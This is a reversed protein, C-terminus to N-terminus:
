ICCIVWNFAQLVIYDKKVSNFDPDGRVSLVGPLSALEKSMNEGIDYCFGFHTDCSAHYICMQADKESGLVQELTKVYFNIVDEKSQVKKPPTEMMVM